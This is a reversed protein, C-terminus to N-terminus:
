LVVVLKGQPSIGGYAHPMSAGIGFAGRPGYISTYGPDYGSPAYAPVTSKIFTKEILYGGFAGLAGAIIPDIKLQKGLFQYGVVGGAVAGVLGNM